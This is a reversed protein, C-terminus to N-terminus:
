RPRKRSQQLLRSIILLAGLQAAGCFTLWLVQLFETSLISPWLEYIPALSMSAPWSVLSLVLAPLLHERESHAMTIAVYCAWSAVVLVVAGYVLAFSHLVGNGKHM